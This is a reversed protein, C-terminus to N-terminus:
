GTKYGNKSNLLDLIINVIKEGAEPEGLKKIKEELALLKEHNIILNKITSLLLDPNLINERIVLVAEKKEYYAANKEQHSNFIPVIIAPKGLVSFETLACLGARSIILDAAALAHKMEQTLLEFVHYRPHELSAGRKGLGTLHIVNLFEVLDKAIKNINDNIKKAGTGGGFVLLTPRKKDLKFIKEAKEKSGELIDKRVPNGTFVTKKRPFDKLSEKFTVTIKDAIKETLKNALGKQIDQQHILVSIRYRKAAWIVPVAVYSGASIVLHPRTIKLIHRAKQYGKLIRFPDSFNKFSLYRRLKGAPIAKFPLNYSKVIKEEPGDESGIFLFDTKIGREKFAQFIAILPMVSGATGGGTLVIKIEKEKAEKDM